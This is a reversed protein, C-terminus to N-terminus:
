GGKKRRGKVMERNPDHKVGGFAEELFRDSVVVLGAVVINTLDSSFGKDVVLDAAKLTQEQEDDSSSMLPLFVLKLCDTDELPEKNLIKKKISEYEKDGGFGKMYVNTFRFSMSGTELRDPAEEIKGSYVVM